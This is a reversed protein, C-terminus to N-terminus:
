LKLMKRTACVRDTELSYYLVGSERITSKDINISHVGQTYHGTKVFLLRGKVDCVKLTAVAAEPLSFSIETSGEFPNPRNQYLEFAPQGQFKLSIDFREAQRDTNTLYAEAATISGGISLLDPLKGSTRAKCRLRFNAIGGSEWALTLAEKEPFLGFHERAMNEGPVIELVELGPTNLTFQCGEMPATARFELELLEGTEVTERGNAASVQFHMTGVSRGDAPVGAHAVATNNVDGIKIGVFDDAMNPLFLETAPISEPFAASFPSMPNPFMYAKKVFRWSTNNPLEQYIGLILKRLEVIDFTTISNSKNADAAIMKYPSGLAEIGLIHKSILVLDFTTVGNLPNLDYGPELTATTVLPIGTPFEFYGLTDTIPFLMPNFPPSFQSNSNIRLPVGAIGVNTETKVYGSIEPAPNGTCNNANDQLVISANNCYDVNGAADRAWVEIFQTSGENCYYNLSDMPNGLSDTPFGMGTAYKRVSYTIRNGPSCNDGSFQLVDQLRVTIIGTAPFNMSLGQKCVVVPPKGDRVTFTYECVRENGCGDSVLWKVRHTGHPIQAPTFVTPAAITNFRITAKTKGGTKVVQKAFRWKQDATVPRFDFERSTGGGTINGFMVTGSPPLAASNIITEPVDDGNLDLFLQYEINLAGATCADYATISIENPAECLNTINLTPDLWYTANWLQPDNDSVDQITQVGTPCNEVVPPQTDIVKIIQKYTYGNGNKSYYISYNTPNADVPNIKVITSKWPDGPTQVPSLIPGPLNTAHNSVASPTPNPVNILSSDPDFTCWNIIRWTREIKYCADPVVTFVQDEFTPTMLECDAGFFTPVGYINSTDCVTVIVDDPFRVFYEQEYAVVIKQACQGMDGASNFVKFNRTITGRHCLTDFLNLAATQQISEVSCSQALPGGYSELTPDFAACSISLDPPATCTPPNDGAVSVKFNCDSFHGMGYNNSVPGAPLQIDYVRLTALLTDGLNRCCLHLSDRFELDAGCSNAELYKTKFSLPSCDDSSGNDMMAAPIELYGSAPLSTVLLSDCVAVPPVMNAVTLNFSCEGTNGCEDTAIYLLNTTGVPFSAVPGFLALTDTNTSDLELLVVGSMMKTLSSDAWFVQLEAIASCNDTLYLDPIDVMARCLSDTVTVARDAPCEFVPGKIDKVQIQQVVIKPNTASFPLCADYIKWTRNLAFNGACDAPQITDFYDWDFKCFSAPTIEYRRNHFSIFPIGNTQESYDPSNCTTIKPGPIQVDALLRERRIIQMCTGTNGSADTASWLRQIIGSLTATDNCPLNQILDTFSTALGNGSCADNAAPMAAQIGFSDRLFSPTLQNLPVVCPVTINTCSFVPPTIDKAQINGYCRNGNRLDTVRVQYTKNVDTNNFTGAVWPGNGFPLSKDLEVIFNQPCGFPGGELVEFSTVTKSCNSSLFITTLDMCNLPAQFPDLVTVSFSCTATNGALDTAVYTNVTEGVPFAAGSPLGGIQIIIVTGQDDEATVTYHLVTDCSLPAITVIINPPCFIQPKVTDMVMGANPLEPMTEPAAANTQLCFVFLILSTLLFKNM